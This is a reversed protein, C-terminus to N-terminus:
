EIRLQCIVHAATGSKVDCSNFKLGHLRRGRLTRWMRSLGRTGRVCTHPVGVCQCRRLPIWVAFDSPFSLVSQLTSVPTPAPIPFALPPPSTFPSSESVARAPRPRPVGPPPPSVLRSPSVRGLVAQERAPADQRFAAPILVPVAPRRRPPARPHVGHAGRAPGAPRPPRRVTQLLATGSCTTSRNLM